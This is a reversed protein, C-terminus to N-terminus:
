RGSKEELILRLMDLVKLAAQHQVLTRGGPFRNSEVRVGAVDAVACYVLGVPKSDTGGSPGAIGTTALGYDTGAAARVGEAMARATEPSVAGAAAITEVPVNLRATKAANAYTIFGERFYASSGPVRTLWRCVLGGTCSEAVAVTEARAALDRGVVTEMEAGDDSFVARGLRGRLEDALAEARKRADSESSDSFAAIHLEVRGSMALITLRRGADRPYLDSIREDLASEGYGFTKLTVRALFGKKRAALRPWVQSECIGELEEPPGPLLVIIRGDRELLQGPATGDPNALVEAGRIVDAQKRNASPMTKGRRRFREEIRGLVDERRDLPLGLVSAVAERTRDDDTPGLGGTIFVLDAGDLVSRVTRALNDPEDGVVSKQAVELGLDNLRRTLYLSDTDLFFPTLLESGVALLRINM